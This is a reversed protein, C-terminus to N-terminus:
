RLEDKRSNEKQNICGIIVILVFLYSFCHMQMLTLSCRNCSYRWFKPVFDLFYKYPTISFYFCQQCDNPAASQCKRCCFSGKNEYFLQLPTLIFLTCEFMPGVLSKHISLHFNSTVFGTIFPRVDEERCRLLHLNQSKMKQLSNVYLAFMVPQKYEITDSNMVM